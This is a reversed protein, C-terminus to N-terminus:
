ASRIASAREAAYCRRWAVLGGGEKAGSYHLTSVNETHALISRGTAAIHAGGHGGGGGGGGSGTSKAEGVCSEVFLGRM